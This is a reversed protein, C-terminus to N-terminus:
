ESGTKERSYTGSRLDTMAFDFDHRRKERATRIAAARLIAKRRRIMLDLFTLADMILIVGVVAIIATSM